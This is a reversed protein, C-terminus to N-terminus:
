KWQPDSSTRTQSCNIESYAWNLPSFYGSSRWGYLVPPTTM